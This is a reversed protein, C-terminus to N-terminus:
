RQGRETPPVSVTGLLQRNALDVWWWTRCDACRGAYGSYADVVHTRIEGVRGTGCSMCKLRVDADAETAEALRRLRGPVAIFDGIWRAIKLFFSVPAHPHNPAETM